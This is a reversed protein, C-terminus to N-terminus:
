SSGTHFDFCSEKKLEEGKTEMELKQVLSNRVEGRGAIESSM